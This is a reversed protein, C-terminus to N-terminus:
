GGNTVKYKGPEGSVLPGPVSLAAAYGLPMPVADGIWKALSHSKPPPGDPLRWCYSDSFGQIRAAEHPTLVRQETPHVYRGRGPTM